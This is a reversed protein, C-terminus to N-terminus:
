LGSRSDILYEHTSKRGIIHLNNEGNGTKHLKEGIANWLRNKLEADKYKPHKPSYLAPNSRVFDILTEKDCESFDM